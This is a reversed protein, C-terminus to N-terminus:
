NEDADDVTAAAESPRHYAFDGGAVAASWAIAAREAMASLADSHITLGASESASISGLTCRVVRGDDGISTQTVDWQGRVRGCGHHRHGGVYMELTLSELADFFCGLEELTARTLAMGHNLVTGSPIARYGALPMNVSGAADSLAEDIETLADRLTAVVAADKAARAKAIDSQLLKRRKKLASTNSTADYMTRWASAGNPPLVELSSVPSRMLDDTRMGPFAPCRDPDLPTAPIAHDVELRGALFTMPGADAAGFLSIFPNKSRLEQELSVDKYLGDKGKSKVGGIRLAYFSRLDLADHGLARLRRNLADHGARRLTGRLSPAPIFATDVLGAAPDYITTVPVPQPDTPKRGEGSGPQTIAVPSELTLHGTLRINLKEM